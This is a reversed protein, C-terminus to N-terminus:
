INVRVNEIEPALLVQDGFEGAATNTISLAVNWLRASVSAIILALPCM